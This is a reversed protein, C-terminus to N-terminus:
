VSVTASETTWGRIPHYAKVEFQYDGYALRPLIAYGSAGDIWESDSGLLRYRFRAHQRERFSLVSFLLKM